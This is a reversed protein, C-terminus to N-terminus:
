SEELGLNEYILIGQNDYIRDLLKSNDFRDAKRPDVSRGFLYSPYVFLERNIILYDIPEYKETHRYAGFYVTDDLLVYNLDSMSGNYIQRQSYEDTSVEFGFLGSYIEFVNIDGIVRSSPDSNRSLWHGSYYLEPVQSRIDMGVVIDENAQRNIMRPTYIGSFLYGTYFLLTIFILILKSINGWKKESGYFLYAIFVSMPICFFWLFTYSASDLETRILVFSVGYSFISFFGYYWLFLKKSIKKERSYKLLRATYLLFGIISLFLFFAHYAYITIMEYGHYVFTAPQQGGESFLLQLGSGGIFFEWIEQIYQIDNQLLFVSVFGEWMFLILFFYVMKLFVRPMKETGFYRAFVKIKMMIGFVWMIFLFLLLLYSISHNGIVVGASFVYFLLNWTRQHKGTGIGKLICYISLLMFIVAILRRSIQIFAMGFSAIFLFTSLYVIEKKRVVESIILFVLLVLFVRFLIFYLYKSIAHISLNLALSSFALLIHLAPNYGYYNEAFGIGLEPDWRGEEIITSAYQNEFYVDRDMQFLHPASMIYIFSLCIELAILAMVKYRRNSVLVILISFAIITWFIPWFVFVPVGIPKYRLYTMLIFIFLVQLCFILMGAKSKM